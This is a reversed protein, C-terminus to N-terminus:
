YLADFQFNCRSFSGLRIRSGHMLLCTNHWTRRRLIQRTMEIRIADITWSRGSGVM